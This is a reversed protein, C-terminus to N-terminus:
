LAEMSAIISFHASLLYVPDQEMLLVFDVLDIHMIDILAIHMTKNLDLIENVTLASTEDVRHILLQAGFEFSHFAAVDGLKIDDAYIFHGLLPNIANM